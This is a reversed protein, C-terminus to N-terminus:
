QNLKQKVAIKVADALKNGKGEDSIIDCRELKSCDEDLCQLALESEALSKFAASILPSKSVPAKINSKKPRAPFGLGPINFPGFVDDLNSKGRNIKPLPTFMSPDGWQIQARAREIFASSKLKVNRSPVSSSDSTQGRMKTKSMTASMQNMQMRLQLELMKPDNDLKKSPNEGEKFLYICELWYMNLEVDSNDLLFCSDLLDKVPIAIDTLYCEAFASGIDCFLTYDTDDINWLLDMQQVPDLPKSKDDCLKQM